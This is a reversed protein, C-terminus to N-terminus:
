VVADACVTVGVLEAAVEFLEEALATGANWFSATTARKADIKIASIPPNQNRMNYITPNNHIYALDYNYLDHNKSFLSM